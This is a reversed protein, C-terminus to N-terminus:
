TNSEYKRWATKYKIVWVWWNDVWHFGRKANIMDWRLAFDEYWTQQSTEIGENLVGQYTIDHLREVAIDVIQVVQRCAVKPMFLSPRWKDVHCTEFDGDNEGHYLYHGGAKPCWAWTERIWLYDNITYPSRIPPVYNEKGSPSIFHWYDHYQKRYLLDTPDRQYWTGSLVHPQPTIIRRTETKIGDYTKQALDPKMLLGKRAQALIQNM